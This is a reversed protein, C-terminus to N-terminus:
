GRRRGPSRAACGPATRMLATHRAARAATRRRLSWVRTMVRTVSVEVPAITTASPSTSAAEAGNSLAKPSCRPGWTTAANSRDTAESACSARAARSGPTSATSPGNGRAVTASGRSVACYPTKPSTVTTPRASGPPSTSRSSRQAPRQAVAGPSTTRLRCDSQVASSRPLRIGTGEPGVSVMTPKAKSRLRVASAQTAGEWISASCGAVVCSSRRKESADDSVRSRSRIPATVARSGCPARM